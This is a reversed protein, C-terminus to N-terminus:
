SKLPVSIARPQVLGCYDNQTNNQPGIGNRKARPCKGREGETGSSSERGKRPEHRRQSSKYWRKRKRKEKKGKSLLLSM